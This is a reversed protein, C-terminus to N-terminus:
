SANEGRVIRFNRPSVLVEVNSEELMAVVGFAARDTDFEDASLVLPLTGPKKVVASRRVSKRLNRAQHMFTLRVYGFDIDLRATISRNYM